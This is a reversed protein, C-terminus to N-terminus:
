AVYYKETLVKLAIDVATIAEQPSAGKASISADLTDYVVVVKTAVWGDSGYNPVVEYHMSTGSWPNNLCHIWDKIDSEKNIFEDNEDKEIYTEPVSNGYWITGVRSNSM